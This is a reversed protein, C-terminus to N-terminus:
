HLVIEANRFAVGYLPYHVGQDLLVVTERRWDPQNGLVTLEWHRRARPSDPGLVLTITGDDTRNIATVSMLEDHRRAKLAANQSLDATLAILDIMRM